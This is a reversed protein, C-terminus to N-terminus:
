PKSERLHIVVHINSLILDPSISALAPCLGLCDGVVVVGWIQLVLSIAVPMERRTSKNVVGWWCSIWRCVVFHHTEVTEKNGAGRTRCFRIRDANRENNPSVQSISNFILLASIGKLSSAGGDADVAGIASGTPGCSGERGNELGGDTRIDDLLDVGSHGLILPLRIGHTLLSTM